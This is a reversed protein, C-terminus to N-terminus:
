SRGPSWALRGGMKKANRREAEAKDMVEWGFREVTGDGTLVVGQDTDQQSTMLEARLCASALILCAGTTAAHPSAGKLIGVNAKRCHVKLRKYVDLDNREQGYLAVSDGALQREEATLSNFSMWRERSKEVRKFDSLRMDLEARQDASPGESILTSLNTDVLLPNAHSPLTCTTSIAKSSTGRPHQYSDLDSLWLSIPEYSQLHPRAQLAHPFSPKTPHNDCESYGTM